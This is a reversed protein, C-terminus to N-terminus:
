SGQHPQIPPDSGLFGWRWASVRAEGVARRDWWLLCGRNERRDRTHLEWGMQGAHDPEVKAWLGLGAHRRYQRGAHSLGIWVEHGCHIRVPILPTPNAQGVDADRQRRVRSPISAM